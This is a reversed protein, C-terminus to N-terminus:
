TTSFELSYLDWKIGYRGKKVSTYAGIEIRVARTPLIDKVPVYKIKENTGDITGEYTLKRWDGYLEIYWITEHDGDKILDFNEPMAVADLDWRCLLHKGDSPIAETVIKALEDIHMGLSVLFLITRQYKYNEALTMGNIRGYEEPLYSEGEKTKNLFTSLKSDAKIYNLITTAEESDYKLPVFTKDESVVRITRKEYTTGWETEIVYDGICAGQTTRLEVPSGSYKKKVVHRLIGSPSIVIRRFGTEKDCRGNSCLIDYEPGQYRETEM